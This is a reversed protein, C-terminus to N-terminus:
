QRKTPPPLFVPQWDEQGRSIVYSHIADVQEPTLVDKFPAMGRDKLKGNLVIDDFDAHAQADLYRLDKPGSGVANQGHCIACNSSFLAAGQAVKEAPQPTSPPPTISEPPPPPPLEVGKADLAYVVLRAPGVSFPRPLGHVIANNWGANVAIYQKGKVSYSIPGAVPVTQTPSEWLKAGNDARFIALTKDMTGQVLLNGATVMTGGGGPLTSPVRFAEKQKVPDWALVYGKDRSQVAEYLEKRLEPYNNVGAGLTTKGLVFKFDKKPMRSVVMWQELTPIYVLGTLPSYAMPNWNHAASPTMM